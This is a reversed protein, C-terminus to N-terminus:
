LPKATEREKKDLTKRVVTIRLTAIKYPLIRQVPRRLVPDANDSKTSPHPPYLYVERSQATSEGLNMYFNDSGFNSTALPIENFKFIFNAGSQTFAVSIKITENTPGGTEFPMNIYCTDEEERCIMTHPESLIDTRMIVVEYTNALTTTSFFITLLFALFLSLSIRQQQTSLGFVIVKYM